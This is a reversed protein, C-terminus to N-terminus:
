LQPRRGDAGPGYFGELLVTIRNTLEEISDPLLRGAHAAVGALRSM